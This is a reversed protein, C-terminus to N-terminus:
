RILNYIILFLIAGALTSLAPTTIKDIAKIITKM